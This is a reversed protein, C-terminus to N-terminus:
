VELHQCLFDIGGDGMDLEHVGPHEHYYFRQPIGLREYIARVKPMERRAGEVTILPDNEGMDIYLARPCVLAAVEADFFLNAANFWGWDTRGYKRRDNFFCSSVAVRIRPDAAAEFLTHFGGYSLGIMGVRAADIDPRITLADLVRQLCLLELAALSGGLRKLQRDIESFDPQRGYKEDWRFLQPAFIAVGRRLVRRTMDNYNASGFFNSCLEPTGLGGHQSIVLAHPGDGPPLFLIGYLELGPLVEIWLRYIRSLDDEAVFVERVAPAVKSPPLTLPWGLMSRFRQRYPEVSAAYAEVSSFDPQFAVARRAEAAEFERDLLAEVQALFTERYLNGIEPSEQYLSM